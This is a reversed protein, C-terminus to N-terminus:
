KATAVLIHAIRSARDRRVSGLLEAAPRVEAGAFGADKLAAVVQEPSDFHVYVRGRVFVSLLTRFAREAAGEVAGVHIDSIYAGAAFGGLTTALRRWISKVEVTPLYPLLGETVVALGEGQDLDGGVAALSGPGDKRLVDLERVLHRQLDSGIRELAQRKRATMGALDADVYILQPYREVFRWGRPSLGAAIEIVQRVGQQEIARELSVDIAQHRLLLYAELTGRGLLGNVTMVPRLSEFLIRGKLTELEPHSLGNRAWVYGTYHATPSITESGSM